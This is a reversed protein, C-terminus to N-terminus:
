ELWFNLLSTLNSFSSITLLVSKKEPKRGPAPVYSQPLIRKLPAGHCLSSWGEQLPVTRSTCSPSTVQEWPRAPYSHLKWFQIGSFFCSILSQNFWNKKVQPFFHNKTAKNSKKLVMKELILPSFSIFQKQKKKLFFFFWKDNPCFFIDMPFDKDRLKNGIVAVM